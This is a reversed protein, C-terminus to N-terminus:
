IKTIHKKLINNIINDWSYKAAAKSINKSNYEDFNQYIHELGECFSQKGENILVGNSRNIVKQNEFTNTAICVLGNRIYEYTKTPPQYQFYETIPIYSVGINHTEFFPQLENYEKRGVYKM